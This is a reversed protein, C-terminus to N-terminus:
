TGALQGEIVAGGLAGEQGVGHPHLAIAFEAEQEDEGVEGVQAAEFAEARVENGVDGVLDLGGEGGDEGGDLGEAVRGEIGGGLGVAEVDEVALGATEVGQHAVDEGEGGDLAALAGGLLVEAGAVEAEEALAGGGQNLLLGLAGVDGDAEGEGGLGEGQAAVGAEELLGDDVEEGIGQVIGGAGGGDVEGELAGVVGGADGDAVVAAADGGFM